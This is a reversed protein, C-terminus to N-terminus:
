SSHNRRPHRGRLPSSLGENRPTGQCQKRRRCNSEQSIRRPEVPSETAAGQLEQTRSLSHTCSYLNITMFYVAPSVSDAVPKGEAKITAKADTGAAAENMKGQLEAMKKHLEGMESVLKEKEKGLEAKETVAPQMVEADDKDNEIKSAELEKAGASAAEHIKKAEELSKAAVDQIKVKDEKVKTLQSTESQLEELEVKLEACKETEGEAEVHQQIFSELLGSLMSLEADLKKEEASLRTLDQNKADLDTQLTSEKSLNTSRQTVQEQAQIM